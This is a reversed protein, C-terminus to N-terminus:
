NADEALMNHKKLVQKYYSDRRPNLSSNTYEKAKEYNIQAIEHLNANIMQELVKELGKIDKRKFTWKDEILEPIGGVRTGIMPCARSLAEVMSRPLGEIDSPQVYIDITDLWRFVDEHKLSGTFIIRDKIGLREALKILKTPTGGGVMQYELNYGKKILSAMAKLVYRQGKYKVYVAGITGLIIKKDKSYDKIKLLRKKLAEAELEGIDVDSIGIYDGSAPYRNQLFSQTVYMVHDAKKVQKKLRFYYIGSVLRGKWSHYWLAGFSCAVVEAIVPKGSKQAINQVVEALDCPLRVIVADAQEVIKEIRKKTEPNFLETYSSIGEFIIRNDLVPELINKANEDEVMRSLFTIEDFYKFYREFVGASYSADFYHKGECKIVRIGHVFLLKM